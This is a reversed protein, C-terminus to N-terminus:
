FILSGDDSDSSCDSGYGIDSNKETHSVDPSAGDDNQSNSDDAATNSSDAVTFMVIDQAITTDDNGPTPVPSPQEEQQIGAPLLQSDHMKFTDMANSTVDKWRIRKLSMSSHDVQVALLKLFRGGTSTLQKLLQTSYSVMQQKTDNASAVNLENERLTCVNHFYKNGPHNQLMSMIYLKTIDDDFQFSNDVFLVDNLKLKMTLSSSSTAPQGDNAGLSEKAKKKKKQVKPPARPSYKPRLTNKLSLINCGRYFLPHSYVQTGKNMKFNYINLQRQFSRFLNRRGSHTYKPLIKDTFIGPQWVKFGRGEEEWSIVKASTPVVNRADELIRYVTCLFSSKVKLPSVEEDALNVVTDEKAKPQTVPQRLPLCRNATLLPQSAGTTVIAPHTGGGTTPNLVFESGHSATDKAASLRSLDLATVNPAAPGDESGLLKQKKTAATTAPPSPFLTSPPIATTTATYPMPFATTNKTTTTTNLLQQQQQKLLAATELPTKMTGGGTSSWQQRSKAIIIAELEQKRTDLYLAVQALENKQREIM